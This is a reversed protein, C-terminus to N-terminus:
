EPGGQKKDPLKKLYKSQYVRTGIKGTKKLREEKTQCGKKPHFLATDTRKGKEKRDEGSTKRQDRGKQQHSGL